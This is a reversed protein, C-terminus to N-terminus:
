FLLEQWRYRVLVERAQLSAGRRAPGALRVQRLRLIGPVRWDVSGITLDRGLSARLEAVILPGIRRSFEMARQYLRLGGAVMLIAAALLAIARARRKGPARVDTPEPRAKLSRPRSTGAGA